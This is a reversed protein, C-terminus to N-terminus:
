SKKSVKKPKASKGDEKKDDKKKKKDSGKEPKPSNLKRILEVARDIDEPKDLRITRRGGTVAASGADIAEVLDPRAADLFTLAVAPPMILKLHDHRDTIVSWDLNHRIEDVHSESYREVTIDDSISQARSTLEIYRAVQDEHHRAAETTAADANNQVEDCETQESFSAVFEIEIVLQKTKEMLSELKVNHPVTIHIYGRPM